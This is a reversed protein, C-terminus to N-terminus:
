KARVVQMHIHLMKFDSNSFKPTDMSKGMM